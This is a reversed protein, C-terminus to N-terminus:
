EERNFKIFDKLKKMARGSDISEMAIELSEKLDSVIGSVFIAAASNLLVVDRYISKEGKLVSSLIKLNEEVSKAKINGKKRKLGFNEPLLKREEIKGENVFICYTPHSISIEDLGDKSHVLLYRGGKFNKLVEAVRMMVSENFFGILQRKVEAPNILPGLINFITRVGIEKRVPQIYRMSPHFYPAFIFGVGIEEISKKIKSPSSSLKIGLGEMLDASGCQGSIARNGHKAVGIEAGAVVFTSITSINFTTKGDGGTGCLDILPNREVSIKISSEKFKKIFSFIEDSKEGKVKLAILFASIQAPTAKGELIDQIASDTIKTELDKGECLKRIAEQIM